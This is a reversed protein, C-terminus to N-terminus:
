DDQDGGRSGAKRGAEFIPTRNKPQNGDQGNKDSQNVGKAKIRAQLGIVRGVRHNETKDVEVVEQHQPSIGTESRTNETKGQEQQGRSEQLMGNDQEIKVVGARSRGPRSIQMVFGVVIERQM